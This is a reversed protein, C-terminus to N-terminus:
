GCGRSRSSRSARPARRSRRGARARRLVTVVRPSSVRTRPSVFSRPPRGRRHAGPLSADDCPRRRDPDGQRIWDACRATMAVGGAGAGRTQPNKSGRGRARATIRALVRTRETLWPRAAQTRSRRARVAGSDAPKANDGRVGNAERTRRPRRSPSCPRSTEVEEFLRVTQPWRYPRDESKRGARYKEASPPRARPSFFLASLRLQQRARPAYLPFARIHEADRRGVRLCAVAATRSRSTREGSFTSGGGGGEGGSSSPAPPAADGAEIGEVGIFGFEEKKAAPYVLLDTASLTM